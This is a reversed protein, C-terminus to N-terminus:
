SFDRVREAEPCLRRRDRRKLARDPLSRLLDSRMVISVSTGTRRIRIRIRDAAATANPLRIGHLSARVAAFCYLARM